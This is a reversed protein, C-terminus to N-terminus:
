VRKRSTAFCPTIGGRGPGRLVVMTKRVGFVGPASNRASATKANRSMLRVLSSDRGM